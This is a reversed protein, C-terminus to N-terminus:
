ITGDENIIKAELIEALAKATRAVIYADDESLQNAKSLIELLENNLKKTSTYVENIRKTVTVLIAMLRKRSASDKEMKTVEREIQNEIDGAKINAAFGAVLLAPGVLLGGFVITGAAMGGGGAALTGGGLWALTANTAAVGTLSSIATGTSAAGLVGVLGYAGAATSIGAATATGIGALVDVANISATKWKLFEEQSIKCKEFISRDKLKAKELFEVAKGLTELSKLRFVGLKDFLSSVKKHRKEAASVVKTYLSRRYAYSAKARKIRNGAVGIGLGGGIASVGIVIGWVLLPIPM